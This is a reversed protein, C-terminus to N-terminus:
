NGQSGLTAFSANELNQVGHPRLQAGHAGNPGLTPPSPPPSARPLRGRFQNKSVFFENTRFTRVPFKPIQVNKAPEM